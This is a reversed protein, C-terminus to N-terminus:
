IFRRVIYLNQSSLVDLAEKTSEKSIFASDREGDLAWIFSTTVKIFYIYHYNVNKNPDLVLTTGKLAAEIYHTEIQNSEEIM